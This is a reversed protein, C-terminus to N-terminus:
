ASSALCDEMLDNGSCVRRTILPWCGTPSGRAPSKMLITRYRQPSGARGPQSATPHTPRRLFAQKRTAVNGNSPHTQLRSGSLELLREETAAWGTVTWGADANARTAQHPNSTIAPQEDRGPQSTPPIPPARRRLFAQKRTAVNGNSPRTQLHSGSLELLREETAAWGDGDM